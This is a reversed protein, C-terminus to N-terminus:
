KTAEPPIMNQPIELGLEQYYRYAGIHWPAIGNQKTVDEHKLNGLASFHLAVEDLHEWFAKTINYVIEESMDSRCAYISGFEPTYADKDMGKYTGAKVTFPTFFSHKELLTSMEEETFSLLRIGNRSGESTEIVSPNPMSGTLVYADIKGSMLSARADAHGLYIPTINEDFIIGLSEMIIQGADAAMFGQKGFCVKKGRLDMIGQIPSNPLVLIQVCGSQRPVLSRVGEFPKEKWRGLGYYAFSTQYAVATSIHAENKQLVDIQAMTPTVVLTPLLDCYKQGISAIASAQLHTSGGLSGGSVIIKNEEQAFIVSNVAAIIFISMILFTLIKKSKM